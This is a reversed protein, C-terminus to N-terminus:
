MPMPLGIADTHSWASRGDVEHGGAAPKHVRSRHSGVAFNLSLCLSSELTPYIITIAYRETIATTLAEFGLPPEIACVPADAFTLPQSVRMLESIKKLTPIRQLMALFVDKVLRADSLARHEAGYSLQM